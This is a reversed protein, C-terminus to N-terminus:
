CDKVPCGLETRKMKRKGMKKKRKDVASNGSKSNKCSYLTTVSGSLALLIIFSLIKRKM